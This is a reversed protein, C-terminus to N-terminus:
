PRRALLARVRPHLFLDETPMRRLAEVLISRRAVAGADRPVFCWRKSGVRALGGPSAEPLVEERVLVGLKELAVTLADIDAQLAPGAEPYRDDGTVRV